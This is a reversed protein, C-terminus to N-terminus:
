GGRLALWAVVATLGAGLVGAAAALRALRVRLAETRQVLQANQEALAQLLESSAVMQRRLEEASSEARAVRAAFAEIAQLADPAEPAAGAPPVSPAAPAEAAPAEDDKVAKWLRRAGDALKPANGIVEGWPVTKLVTLWGLAM